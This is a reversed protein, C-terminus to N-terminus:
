VSPAAPGAKIRWTGDALVLDDTVNWLRYQFHGASATDSTTVAVTVRNNDDGSVVGSATVLATDPDSDDWASFGVDKGDLDIPNDDADVCDFVITQAAHQYGIITSSAIEGTNAVATAPTITLVAPDKQDAVTIPAILDDHTFKVRYRDCNAEADTLDLTWLEADVHEPTNTAAGYAASDKSLVATVDGTTIPDGVADYLPIEIAHGTGKTYGM